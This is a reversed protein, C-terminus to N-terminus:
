KSSVYIIVMDDEYIIGQKEPIPQDDSFMSLAENLLAEKKKYDSHMNVTSYIFITISLAFSAAVGSLGVLFWQKKRKRTQITAWISDKLHSPAKKRKQIIYTSWEKIGPLQNDSNFLKDEEELTSDAALYKEILDDSKRNNM